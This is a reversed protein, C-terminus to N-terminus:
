DEADRNRLWKPAGLLVRWVYLGPVLLSSRVGYRARMFSAAPFLHENVLRMRARWSPLAELDARLLDIPRGPGGGTLATVGSEHTAQERLAMVLEAAGRTAFWQQALTLADAAMQSLGRSRALECFQVTEAASLSSVLLHLDYVWLLDRSGPHHGARHILALLLAHAANTTVASSGLAHVPIRSGWLEEFTLRDALTQMNSIKWHVDFAHIVGHRDTRHYHSQYSVFRGSTEPPRVYGLHGLAAELIPVDSAAVLLDTDSRVRVHPAPYHTYALAAGKFPLARVGASTVDVLVKVLESHRVCDVSVGEREARVFADVFHAPWGHLTGAARLAWGLLLLVRHRSAAAVLAAVERGSQAPAPSTPDQLGRLIIAQIDRESLPKASTPSSM